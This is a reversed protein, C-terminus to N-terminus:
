PTQLWCIYHKGYMDTAELKMEIALNNAPKKIDLFMLHSLITAHPGVSIPTANFVWDVERTQSDTVRGEKVSMETLSNGNSKLWARWGVVSNGQSSLNSIFVELMWSSGDYKNHGKDTKQQIRLKARTLWYSRILAWGGLVTGAASLIKFLIDMLKQLVLAELRAIAWLQQAMPRSNPAAVQRCLATFQALTAAASPFVTATTASISNEAALVM